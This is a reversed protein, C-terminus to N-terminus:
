DRPARRRTPDADARTLPLGEGALRPCLDRGLQGGAGLVAYKVARSREVIILTNVGGGSQLIPRPARWSSCVGTWGFGPPSRRGSPPILRMPRERKSRDSQTPRTS